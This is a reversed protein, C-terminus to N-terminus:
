RTKEKDKKERKDKLEKKLAKKETKTLIKFASIQNTKKIHKKM